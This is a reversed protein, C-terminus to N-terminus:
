RYSLVWLPLKYKKAEAKLFDYTKSGVISWGYRYPEQGKYFVELEMKNVAIAVDLHACVIGDKFYAFGITPIYPGVPDDNYEDKYSDKLLQLLTECDRISLLKGKDNTISGPLEMYQLTSDNLHHEPRFKVVNYIDPTDVVLSFDETDDKRENLYFVKVSDYKISNLNAILAADMKNYVTKRTYFKYKRPVHRKQAKGALFFFIMITTFLIRIM